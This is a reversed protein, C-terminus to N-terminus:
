TKDPPSDPDGQTRDPLMRTLSKEVAERTTEKVGAGKGTM